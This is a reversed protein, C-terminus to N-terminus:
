YETLRLEVREGNEDAQILGRQKCVFQDHLVLPHMVIWSCRSSCFARARIKQRNAALFTV